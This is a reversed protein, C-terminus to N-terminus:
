IFDCEDSIREKLKSGQMDMGISRSFEYFYDRGHNSRAVFFYADLEDEISDAAMELVDYPMQELLQNSIKGKTYLEKYITSVLQYYELWEEPIAKDQNSELTNILNDYNIKEAPVKVTTSVKMQELGHLTPKM